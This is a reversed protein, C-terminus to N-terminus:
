RYLTQTVFSFHVSAKTQIFPMLASQCNVVFNFIMPEVLDLPFQSFHPLNNEDCAAGSPDTEPKNIIKGLRSKLHFGYYKLEYCAGATAM